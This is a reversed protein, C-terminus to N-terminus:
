QNIRKYTKRRQEHCKPCTTFAKNYSTFETGCDQCICTYTIDEAEEIVPLIVCRCNPHAPIPLSANISYRKKHLKGCIECRREDYDALIEVEQIGANRYREKASETQIHALETRVLTDARKFSVGFDETLKKKLEGPNKGTVLCEILSDNLAQQLAGVNGWVRSSWSKGDACWIRNIMQQVASTDIQSFYLDDKLAIAEYVKYWEKQFQKSLIEAQKDGLKTLEEKLQAEMKWYTDLKYLDAPTPARGDEISLLIKNYTQEFQGIVKQQTKQYYKAIQAETEEITKNTVNELSKAIREEWYGAM